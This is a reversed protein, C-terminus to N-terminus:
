SPGVIQRGHLPRGPAVATASFLGPGKAETVETLARIRIADFGAQDLFRRIQGDSFGLWVHGMKQRYEEREHPRMDVVLLRGGPKLVRRAEALASAPAAVHHLVLFMVAADLTEDEIPLAELVGRRLDVGPLHGARERAAALMEDSGDVGIVSAVHPALMAVVIGTGCGLDGVTWHGPLLGPLAEAAGHRGFLEDRLRDWQEASSAFFQQSRESRRALVRALRRGDQEFGARGALPAKTLAWLQTRVGDAGDLALTYYRSTGDRRSAVWGADALTRLHRSVTSQPLQMVACVESVTLEQGDLLWLMRRRTADSLASFSDLVPDAAVAM